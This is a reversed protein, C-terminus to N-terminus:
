LFKEFSAEGTNVKKIFSTCNTQLSAHWVVNVSSLLLSDISGIKLPGLQARGKWMEEFAELVAMPANFIGLIDVLVHFPPIDKVEAGIWRLSKTM